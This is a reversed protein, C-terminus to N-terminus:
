AAGGDRKKCLWCGGAHDHICKVVEGEEAESLMDAIDAIVANKLTLRFPRRDQTRKMNELHLLSSRKAIGRVAKALEEPREPKHESDLVDHLESAIGEWTGSRSLLFDRLDAALRDSPSDGYLGTYVRRAQHKFYGLLKIAGTMDEANVEEYTGRSDLEAIRTMALILAFRALYAELKGWAPRLRQPFGPDELEEHLKDYEAVFLEKAADSMRVRSPFPAGEADEAHQLRYLRKITETYGNRANDSIEDDSWKGIQPAPYAFVFRDLLGDGRDKGFDPLVEPQIGGLVSAFPHPVIVPEELSKRDVVISQNTHVSLWFQRDAGKGGQKYQNMGGLWGSLEDKAVLVGRPNENLTDAFREVTTDDAYTRKLTPKKPPGYEVPGGKALKEYERLESKYEEKQREYERKLVLQRERVPKLAANMAPSKKSAPGGVIAAFISAGESWDRKLVIRRTDGIAASLAALVSIALFDVPCGISAAAERVLQRIGPPLAELPFTKSDPLDVLDKFVSDNSVNSDLKSKKGRTITPRVMAGAPYRCINRAIERVESEELPPICRTENTVSLAAFIEGEGLGRERMTGALSILTNNRKSNPIQEAVPAAAMGKGIESQVSKQWLSVLGPVAEFESPDTHIFAERRDQALEQIAKIELNFFEHAYLPIKYLGTKKHRTNPTRWLRLTEYISLDAAVSDRLMEAGVVKLRAATDRGPELGGFLNQPIEVHVGKSGSYFYRLAEPLIGYIAEWRRVTRRADELAKGPDEHDFDAAFFDAKAKGAYGKVSGENHAVYAPFSEPFRLMTSFSDAHGNPKYDDIRRVDNRRNLGGIACDVYPFAEQNTTTKSETM